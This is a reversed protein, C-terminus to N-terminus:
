AKVNSRQGTVGPWRPVFPLQENEQIKDESINSEKLERPQWGLFPCYHLAWVSKYRMPFSEAAPPSDPHHLSDHQHFHAWLIQWTYIAGDVPHMNQEYLMHNAGDNQTTKGWFNMKLKICQISSSLRPKRIVDINNQKERKTTLIHDNLHHNDYITRLTIYTFDCISKLCKLNIWVYTLDLQTVVKKVLLYSSLSSQNVCVKQWNEIM